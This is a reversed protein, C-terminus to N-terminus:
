SPPRAPQEAALKRRVDSEIKERTAAAAAADEASLQQQIRQYLAAVKGHPMADLAEGILLMDQPSLHLDYARAPVALLCLASIILLRV